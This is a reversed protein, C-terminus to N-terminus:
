HDHCGFFCGLCFALYPFPLCCFFDGVKRFNANNLSRINNHFIDIEISGKSLYSDNLDSGKLYSCNTSLFPDFYVTKSLYNKNRQENNTTNASSTIGPETTNLKPPTIYDNNLDVKKVVCSFPLLCM